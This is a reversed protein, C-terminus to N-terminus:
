KKLLERLKENITVKDVITLNQKTALEQVIIYILAPRIDLENKLSILDDVIKLFDKNM